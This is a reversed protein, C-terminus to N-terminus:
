EPLQELKERIKSLLAAQETMQFVEEFVFDYTGIVKYVGEAVQELVEVKTTTQAPYTTTSQFPIKIQKNTLDM